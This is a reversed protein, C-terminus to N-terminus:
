LNGDFRVRPRELWMKRWSGDYSHQVIVENQEVGIESRLVKFLDLPLAKTFLDALQAKTPVYEPSIVGAEFRDRVYHYQVDIHKTRKHFEPNKILRIAGQNDVKLLTPAGQVCHIGDL